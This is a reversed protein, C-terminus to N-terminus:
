MVFEVLHSMSELKGKESYTEQKITGIAPSIWVHEQTPKGMNREKGLLKMTTKRNSVVKICEFTREPTTVHEKAVVKRGTLASTIDVGMNGSNTKMTFVADDLTQGPYM